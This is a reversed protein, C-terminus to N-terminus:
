SKLLEEYLKLTEKTMKEFSYKQLIKQYSFKPRKKLFYEIKKRIDEENKPDFSLYNKGWMEEFTDIKSAIIPKGFYAAEVLTLGFGESLSPHILALCNKYFWLLDKRTINKLIFIRKDNIKKRYDELRKTFYDAPGILILKYDGKIRCFVRILREVNKHPYFNGVYLFFNKFKKKFFLNDKIKKGEFLLYYDVGEYIPIIKKEIWNGFYFCLQNKVTKSPTIIKLAKKVSISFLNKFIFHKLHYVFVNRTSARGTKFFIPTLDHVTLVYKKPYLIPFTFYTFHVLDLNDVLLTKLFFVQESFSHWFFNAEKKIINKSEFDVKPLDEKLLYVFYNINKDNNKDLYFLLNRIYTGVGTQNYLRADIGVKKM